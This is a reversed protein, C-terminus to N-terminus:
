RVARLARQERSMTSQRASVRDFDSQAVEARADALYRMLMVNSTWGAIEMCASETGGDAMYRVCWGRRLAHPSVPVGARAAAKKVVNQVANTTMWPSSRRAGINVLLPGPTDGRRRPNLYARLLQLTDDALPVRRPRGTKTDPIWLQRATLDLHELTVNATEGVRLGSRFMLSVAIANRLGVSTRKDFTTMIADVESLTAAHTDSWAPAWPQPVDTMPSRRGGLPDTSHAVCAKYFAVLQSWNKVCTAPAVASVDQAPDGAARKALWDRCDATTAALLDADRYAALWTAFQRLTGGANERSRDSKARWTALMEAILEDRDWVADDVPLTLELHPRDTAPM